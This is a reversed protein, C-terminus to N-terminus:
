GLYGADGIRQEVLEAGILVMPLGNGPTTSAGVYFLHPNSRSRNSPRFCVSQMFDHSLGFAAGKDLNLDGAWDQPGYTRQAHIQAPDFGAVECLREAVLTQMQQEDQATMKYDLNPCPVLVFVNEHGDPARDPQTRNSLAVYFAPDQPMRLPHQFIADLNSRFDAGFFVNHHLLNPLSGKYDIYMLYASCSTRREKAPRKELEREVYPLDANAIILDATRETGDQMRVRNGEISAVSQGLEITAGRATALDAVVESVRPLGGRPYWIGEGYEMYTLVGYVWPADYPSLGLYMTQFTFLMRLRPDDVYKEMRRALNSLMHHKFVAQIDRPRALDLVSRYNRRVFQPVSVRYLEALDGLLKGYREAERRGALNEIQKVMQAVNPTGDLTTGDRYFVRYSPDCLTIPLHDEMREGLDNFLREFPERMMLLTPGGDFDCEGVRVRRNRGGIQDTKELVTVQVGRHALRAATALGGLGAGIVIATKAKV